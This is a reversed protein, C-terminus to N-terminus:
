RFWPINMQLAIAIICLILLLLSSAAITIANRRRNM